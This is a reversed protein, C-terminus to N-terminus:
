RVIRMQGQNGPRVTLDPNAFEARIRVRQNVPDIEPSVFTVKGPLSIEEYDGNLEIMVPQGQLSQSALSAAVLAEAQLTQLDVVRFVSAGPEVWEGVQSEVRVLMGDFPARINRHELLLEAMAHQNEHLSKTIHAVVHTREEQKLLLEFRRIAEEQQRLTAREMDPTMGLLEQEHQAQEMELTFKRVAAQLRDMETQSVAGKFAARAKEARQLEMAALEKQSAAVRVAVDAEARNESMKLAILQKQRSSQAERLQATATDLPLKDEAHLAAIKLNLEAAQLSLTQQDNDLVALIDGKQVMQGEQALLEKIVGPARVSVDAERLLGVTVRPILLDDQRDQASLVTATATLAILCTATCVTITMVDSRKNM